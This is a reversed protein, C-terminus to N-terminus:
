CVGELGAQSGPHVPQALIVLEAASATNDQLKKLSGDTVEQKRVLDTLERRSVVQRVLKEHEAKTTTTSREVEKLM